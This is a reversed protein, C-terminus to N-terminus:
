ETAAADSTLARLFKNLESKITSAIGAYGPMQLYIAGALGKSIVLDKGHNDVTIMDDKGITDCIDILDKLTQVASEKDEGIYFFFPDDFDNSTPISMYYTENHKMLRVLGTRASAIKEIKDVERKVTLQANGIAPLLTMMAIVAFIFKKM